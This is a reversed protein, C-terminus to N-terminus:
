HRLLNMNGARNAAKEVRDLGQVVRDMIKAQEKSEKTAAVIGWIGMVLELGILFIVILEMRFDRTAIRRSEARELAAERRDLEAMYFQAELVLPARGAWPAPFNKSTDFCTKAEALLTEAAANQFEEFTM